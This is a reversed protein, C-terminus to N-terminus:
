NHIGIEACSMPRLLQIDDLQIHMPQTLSKVLITSSNRYLIQVSTQRTAEGEVQLSTRQAIADILSAEGVIEACQPKLGGLEQPIVPYLLSSFAFIYVSTVFLTPIHADRMVLDLAMTLRSQNKPEVPVGVVISLFISVSSAVLINAGLSDPEQSEFVLLGFGAIAGVIGIVLSWDSIVRMRKVDIKESLQTIEAVLTAVSNVSAWFVLFPVLTITGIILYQFDLATVVGLGNIWSYLAWGIYGIIYAFVGLHWVYSWYEDLLTRVSQIVGTRSISKNENTM